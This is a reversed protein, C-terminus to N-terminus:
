VEGYERQITRINITELDYEGNEVNRCVCIGRWYMANSDGAWDMHYDFYCGAVLGHLKTGDGRTRVSYDLVHSHGATASIHKKLVLAAAPHDSSIPRGMIGSTFYHCYTIGDITVMEKFPHYEWGYKKYGLDQIDIAGELEPQLNIARRIRDEHNGEIFVMRPTYQAKKNRARQANYENMPAAFRKRADLAAKVDKKYRRGEFNKTGRDYSSLSPMDAWDGIDIIVDPRVDMVLQGLWDYRDNPQDPHAHSDGIVLHTNGM